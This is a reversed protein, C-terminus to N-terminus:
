ERLVQALRCIGERIQQANLDAYGIIFEGGYSPKLYNPAASILGVGLQAARHVIEEDNLTTRLRVMLHMGANKGLIKVRDQLYMSLAQVLTQRRQHYLARMRRIHRELHGENIFDTLIRQELLPSQRDALYKAHAFVNVLSEPVVLYGIRLAPFLVKSFTGTYIVNDSRDLGQLAAIPREGYSYASDYDDEVIMTGSRKAWSLLELRRSLSLISGTPFQHSPTVYVLHINAASFESLHKVVIGSEDVPVPWVQAGQALFTNRASLYGPDEMAVWNGRDILLRTTMDLAQQSGNVIIVQEAKCNVARSRVLYRAIAERLPKYGLLDNTYDLLNPCLQCHHVLLRRWQRLPFEDFAPRGQRFNILLDQEITKFPKGDTLSTGYNSLKIQKTQPAQRDPQTSQIFIEPLEDTVFTGSGHISELYGESILQEYSLNVTARSVKCFQALARTSPIRQGPALRGTLISLRLEDYLQRHLPLSNTKDLKIVLDM